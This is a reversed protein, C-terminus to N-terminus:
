AGPNVASVIWTSGNLRVSGDAAALPALAAHVAQDLVPLRAPDLERALRSLPGIRVANAAAALVSTGLLVPTDFRQLRIDAFGAQSLLGTLRQDDAFAFPGPAHPDMPAPTIGLATRAAALPAMAWPNDRPTRWCVFVMRGAARLAGRLHRLAAEPQAFFMVGFRSFMLDTHGPLAAAAADAQRFEPEAGAGQRSVVEARARAVALMPQSLDLGLVRGTAGVRQALDLTTGGCGCGNDIVQEGVQAAAQALAALGFPRVIGDIEDQLEAWRQGLPGNWEAIQETNDVSM